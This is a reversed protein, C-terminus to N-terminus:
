RNGVPAHQSLSLVKRGFDTRVSILRRLEVVAWGRQGIPHNEAMYM